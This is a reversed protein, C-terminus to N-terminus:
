IATTRNVLFSSLDSNTPFVVCQCIRHLASNYHISIYINIALWVATGAVKQPRYQAALLFCQIIKVKKKKLGRSLSAAQHIPALSPDGLLVPGFRNEKRKIYIPIWLLSMLLIVHISSLHSISSPRGNKLLGIM